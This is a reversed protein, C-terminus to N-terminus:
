LSNLIQIVQNNIRSDGVSIRYFGNGWAVKNIMIGNSKMIKSLNVPTKVLIFSGQSPYLIINESSDVEDLIRDREESIYLANEKFSEENDLLVGGMVETLTNLCFILRRGNIKNINERSGVIYGLRIGAAGYAKSFTRACILKPSSAAVDILSSEGSFEIYAEDIVVIGSCVETVKKIFDPALVLGTPNHPTCLYIVKPDELIVKEIFGEEDLTLEPTLDFPIFEGGALSVYEPYVVFHPSITMAKEGPSLFTETVVKLLEDSGNGVAINKNSIGLKESLKETLNEGRFSGYRNLDTIKIKETFEEMIEGSLNFPAENFHLKYM